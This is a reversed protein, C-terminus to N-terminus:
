AGYWNFIDEDIEANFALSRREGDAAFPYVHHMLYHPFISMVGAAPEVIYTSYSLFQRSGHTFTIVGDRDKRKKGATVMDTPVKLWGAGSIHGSHWHTPNYENAFQRNVWIDKLVFKTIKKETSQEIFTSVANALYDGLGLKQCANASIRYEAEIQGALNEGNPSLEPSDSDVLDNLQICLKEPIDYLGIPPGFPRIIQNYKATEELVVERDLGGTFITWFSSPIAL